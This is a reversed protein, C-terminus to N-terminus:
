NLHKTALPLDWPLQTWPSREHTLLWDANKRFAAMSEPSAEGWFERGLLFNQSLEAWSGYSRQLKRAAELAVDWAAAEDIWGATFSARALFSLRVTDWATLTGDKLESGHESVFLVARRIHRDQAAVFSEIKETPVKQLAHLIQEFEASHGQHRLWDFTQRADDTGHVSWQRGLVERAKERGNPLALADLEREWTITLNAGAAVAWLEVPTLPKKATAERTEAAAPKPKDGTTKPPRAAVKRAPAAAKTAQPTARQPPAAPEPSLAAQRASPDHRFPAGCRRCANGLRAPLQVGCAPCRWNWLHVLLVTVAVACAVAAPGEGGLGAIEHHSDVYLYTLVYVSAVGALLSLREIWRRRQLSQAIRQKQEETFSKLVLGGELV